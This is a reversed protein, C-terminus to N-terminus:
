HVRAGGPLSAMIAAEEDLLEGLRADVAARQSADEAALALEVFLDAHRDEASALAEYFDALRADGIRRFGAALIQLREHSRAEILASTLLLDVKRVPEGQRVLALLRRTFHNPTDARLRLDREGMIVSVQVLHSTEEHALRMLPEVFASRGAYKRVLSMANEAAKRECHLHDSM